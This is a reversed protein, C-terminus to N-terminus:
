EALGPILNKTPRRPMNDHVLIHHKGVMYTHFDAVVLSHAHSEPGPEVYEIPRAGRAGHLRDGVNLHKTMQWGKGVVWMPHGLTAVIEEDGLGVRLTPGAERLIVHVVLKYSVEGSEPDQSLVRDGIRISEIPADGTDTPILTGPLFCDAPLQLSLAQADQYHFVPKEQAQQVENYNQWWQWWAQPQRELQQGSARELVPYIRQNLAEAAANTNAVQRQLRAGESIGERAGAQSLQDRAKLQRSMGLQDSSEQMRFRYERMSSAVLVAEPGEQLAKYGYVAKGSWADVFYSLEIPTALSGLLTPVFAYLSRTSLQESAMERVQPFESLVALRMLVNTAVQQDFRKLV